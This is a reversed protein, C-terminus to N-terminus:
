LAQLARVDRLNYELLAQQQSETYPGGRAALLQMEHKDVFNAADIGYALLAAVLSRGLGPGHGNRLRKFEVCLDVVNAPLSWGLKLRCCLEAPAHFAVYLDNRTLLFPPEDSGDCLWRQVIQGSRWELTTSCVPRPRHGPATAYEFDELIIRDFDKETM